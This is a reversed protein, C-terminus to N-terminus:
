RSRTRRQASTKVKRKPQVRTRQRTNSSQGGRDSNRDGNGTGGETTMGALNQLIGGAAGDFLGFARTVTVFVQQIVSQVDVDDQAENESYQWQTHTEFRDWPRPRNAGGAGKAM